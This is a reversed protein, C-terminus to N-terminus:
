ATRAEDAIIYCGMAFLISGSVRQLIQQRRRHTVLWDSVKSSSVAVLLDCPLGSLTVIIGLLLLQQAVPASEPVVFQPLFAIFFLATKPNTVEVIVSERFVAFLPRTNAPKRLGASSSAVSKWYSIGLYIPSVAGALKILTYLLPAHSFVVALGLVTALVHVLSGAALGAAAVMGGRTGLAISRAMVYLNSPGPSMNLLLSAATFAILVDISPM